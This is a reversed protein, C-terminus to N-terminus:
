RAVHASVSKKGSDDGSAVDDTEDEPEKQSAAVEGSVSIGYEEAM